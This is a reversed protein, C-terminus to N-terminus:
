QSGFLSRHSRDGMWGQYRQIHVFRNRAQLQQLFLRESATNDESDADPNRRRLSVGVDAAQLRTRETLFDGFAVAKLITFEARPDRDIAAIRDALTALAEEVNERKLRPLESGSVTEGSATTVYESSDEKRQVYGQMALIDLIQKADKAGINLCEQMDRSTWTLAGRTDKLFSFVAPTSASPLNRILEPVATKCDIEPQSPKRSHKPM